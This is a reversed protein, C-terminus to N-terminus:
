RTTHITRYITEHTIQTRPDEGHHPRLHRVIQEPSWEEPLLPLATQRWGAGDSQATSDSDTM